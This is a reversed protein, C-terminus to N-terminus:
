YFSHLFTVIYLCVKEQAPFPPGFSPTSNLSLMVSKVTGKSMLIFPACLKNKVVFDRVCDKLDDGKKFCITFVKVQGSM